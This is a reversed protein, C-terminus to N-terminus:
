AQAASLPKAADTPVFDFERTQEHDVGASDSGRFQSSASGQTAAQRASEIILNLIAPLMAKNNFVVYVKVFQDVYSRGYQALTREIQALEPDRDSISKWGLEDASQGSNLVLDRTSSVGRDVVPRM